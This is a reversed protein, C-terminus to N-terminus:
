AGLTISILAGYQLAQLVAICRRQFKSRPHQRHM